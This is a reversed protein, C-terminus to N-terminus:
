EQVLVSCTPVECKNKYVEACEVYCFMKDSHACTTPMKGKLTSLLM